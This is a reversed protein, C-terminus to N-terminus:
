ARKDLFDYGKEFDIDKAIEPFFFNLFDCFYTETAEKWVSDKEIIEM